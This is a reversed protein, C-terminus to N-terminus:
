IRRSCNRILSSHIDNTAGVEKRQAMVAVCNLISFDEADEKMMEYMDIM